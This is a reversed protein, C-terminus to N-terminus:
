ENNLKELKEKQQALTDVGYKLREKDSVKTTDYNKMVWPKFKTKTYQTGYIQPKDLSLLYRDTAAAYLRKDITSDLEIAKKMLSIAKAYDSSDNGHQFIYAIMQHEKASVVMGSDILQNARNRRLEDRKSLRTWRLDSKRDNQDTEFLEIIDATMIEQDDNHNKSCGVVALLILLYIKKM